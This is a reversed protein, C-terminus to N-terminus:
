CILGEEGYAITRGTCSNKGTFHERKKIFSVMQIYNENNM